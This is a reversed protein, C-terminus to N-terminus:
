KISFIKRLFSIKIVALLTLACWIVKLGIMLIGKMPINPIIDDLPLAYTEIVPFCVLIISYRGLFALSNKIISFHKTIYRSVIYFFFTGSTALIINPVYYLKWKVQAM